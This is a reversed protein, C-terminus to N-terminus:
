KKNKSWANCKSCVSYDTRNGSLHKQRLANYKEVRSMDQEYLKKAYRPDLEEVM